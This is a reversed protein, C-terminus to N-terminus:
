LKKAKYFCNVDKVFLRGTQGYTVCKAGGRCSEAYRCDACEEPIPLQMLKQTTPDSSLLEDLEGDRINGVAFPLRRCPMVTGDALITVMNVGPHCTYCRGEDMCQLSREMSILFSGDARKYRERLREAKKVFCKFRRTSLALKETAQPTDTVVRDWWLKRVGHQACVKALAPFSKLNSKQATFSVMVPIHMATLADIGKLAREFSYLGRVRDHVEGVGDLSVQVFAPHLLALRNATDLDILTGNTLVSFAMGRRTIEEALECFAPHLLPEGGTLYVHGRCNIKALFRCYKDLTEHLAEVSTHAARDDQYCHACLLNCRHTIHWQLVHRGPGAPTGQPEGAGTAETRSNHEEESMQLHKRDVQPARRIQRVEHTGCPFLRLDIQRESTNFIGFFPM